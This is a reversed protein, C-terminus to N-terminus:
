EEMPYRKVLSELSPNRGTFQQFVSKASVGGGQALYTSRFRRGVKTLQKENQFGADTFEEMINAALMESWINMYYAAVYAESMWLTPDSCWVWDEPHLEIPMFLKYLDIQIDKWYNDHALHNEIDFASKYLETCMDLGKMYAQCKLLKDIQIDSLPEGTLHHTSIDRIVHPQLAMMKMVNSVVYIADREINRQGALEVLPVETLLQQLSNGMESFLALVERFSMLNPVGQRETKLVNLTIVSIPSMALLDCRERCIYTTDVIRKTPRAFPDIYLRAVYSGDENLLNYATVDQHWVDVTSPDVQEFKIGFMKECLSFLSRLVVDYTFYQMRDVKQMSYLKDCHLRRYYPIDWQKIPEKLGMSAAFQQLDAVEKKAMPLFHERYRDLMTLVTKLNGAMRREMCLDTFHEFGVKQAIDRRAETIQGPIEFTHLRIDTSFHTGIIHWGNWVKFRHTRNPCIELFAEVIPKKLTVRWPGRDVASKDRAIEQIIEAPLEKLYKWDAQGGLDLFFLSKHTMVKRQFEEQNREIKQYCEMIYTYDKKKNDLKHMGIMKAEYIYIDLLRKHYDSLKDYDKKKIRVLANYFEEQFHIENLSRQIQSDIRDYNPRPFDKFNTQTLIEAQHYATYLPAMSQELASVIEEFSLKKASLTDVLQDFKSDFTLALKACGRLVTNKKVKSFEPFKEYNMVPNNDKNDKPVEPI